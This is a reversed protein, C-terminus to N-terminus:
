TTWKEVQSRLTRYIAIGFATVFISCLGGALIGHFMAVELEFPHRAPQVPLMLWVLAGGCVCGLGVGNVFLRSTPTLGPRRPLPLPDTETPSQYPNVEM